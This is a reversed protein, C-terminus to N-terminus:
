RRYQRKRRDINNLIPDLEGRQVQLLRVLQDAHISNNVIMERFAAAIEPRDFREAVAIARAALRQFEARLAQLDTSPDRDAM